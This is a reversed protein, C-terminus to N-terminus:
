TFTKDYDIQLSPIFDEVVMAITTAEVTSQDLLTVKVTFEYTVYTTM